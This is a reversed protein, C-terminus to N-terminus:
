TVDRGMRAIGVVDYSGVTESRLLSGVEFPWIFNECKTSKLLVISFSGWPKLDVCIYRIEKFEM